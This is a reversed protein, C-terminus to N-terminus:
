DDLAGFIQRLIMTDDYTTRGTLGIRMSINTGEGGWPWWLGYAIIGGVEPTAYLMQDPRVGGTAEAIDMVLEPAKKLSATNWTEPLVGMVLRRAEDAHSLDFTSAV